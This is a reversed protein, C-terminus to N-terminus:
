EIWQIQQQFHRNQWAESRTGAARSAPLGCAQPLTAPLGSDPLRQACPLGRL